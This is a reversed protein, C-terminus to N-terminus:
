SIKEYFTEGNSATAFRVYEEYGYDNAFYVNYTSEGYNLGQPNYIVADFDNVEIYVMKKRYRSLAEATEKTIILCEICDSSKGFAPFTCFKKALPCNTDDTYERKDNVHLPEFHLMGVEQMEAHWRECEAIEEDSLDSADGNVLYSIAWVPVDEIRGFDDVLEDFYNKEIKTKM